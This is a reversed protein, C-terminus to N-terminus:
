LQETAQSIQVLSNTGVFGLEFGMLTTKIITHKMKLTHTNKCWGHSPWVLLVFAMVLRQSYFLLILMLSPFLSSLVVWFTTVLLFKQLSAVFVHLSSILLSDVYSNHFEPVALTPLSTPLFLSILVLISVSANINKFLSYIISTAHVLYWGARRERNACLSQSSLSLKM